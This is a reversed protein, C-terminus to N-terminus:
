FHVTGVLDVQDQDLHVQEEKDAERDLEDVQSQSPPVAIWLVPEGDDDEGRGDWDEVSGDVGDAVLAAFPHRRKQCGHHSTDDVKDVLDDAHIVALLDGDVFTDVDEEGEKTLGKKQSAQMGKQVSYTENRKGKVELQSTNQRVFM